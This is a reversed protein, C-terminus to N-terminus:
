LFRRMISKAIGLNLGLKKEIAAIIIIDEETFARSFLILTAYIILYIAFLAFIGYINTSFFKALYSVIFITILGNLIYKVYYRIKYKFKIIRRAAFFLIMRQISFMLGTAIAAGIIGYKPILFINLIINLVAVFMNVKFILKTKNFTMLMNAVPGVISSTFYALTLIILVSSGLIYESGFFLNILQKSFRITLFLLPLTLMFTWRVTTSYVKSLETYNKKAHLESMVPYLIYSFSTFFIMINVSLPVAANYIGVENLTRLAGLLFTDSWSMVNVLIGSLFLPISFQLLERNNTIAKIKSRFFSVVKKELCYIGIITAIILSVLYVLSIGIISGGIFIVIGVLLLNILERGVVRSWFDYEPKKFALFTNTLLVIATYFPIGLAFIKLIPIFSSAHFVNISIYDSLLWILASLLLSLVISIKIAAIFTGKIRRADKKGRYYAIYRNIGQNLGLLSFAISVNLMMIGLSILGYNSPGFENAIIARYAFRSVYLILTSIFLIGSGRAVQKLTKDSM